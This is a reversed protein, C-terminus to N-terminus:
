NHPQVGWRLMIEQILPRATAHIRFVFFFTLHVGSTAEWVYPVWATVPPLTTTPVLLSAIFSGFTLHSLLMRLANRSHSPSNMHCATCSLSAEPRALSQGNWPIQEDGSISSPM